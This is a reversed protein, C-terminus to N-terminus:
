RRGGGGTTDPTVRNNPIDSDNPIDNDKPPDTSQSLGEAASNGPAVDAVDARNRADAVSENGSRSGPPDGPDAEGRLHAVLPLLKARGRACRSKITGSAVGLMAAAEDVSYGEM